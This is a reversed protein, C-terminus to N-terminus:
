EPEKWLDRIVNRVLEVCCTMDLSTRDHMAKAARQVQEDGVHTLRFNEIRLKTSLEQLRGNSGELEGIVRDKDALLARYPKVQELERELRELHVRWHRIHLRNIHATEAGFDAFVGLPTEYSRIEELIESM